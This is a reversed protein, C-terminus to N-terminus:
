CAKGNEQTEKTSEDHGLRAEDWFISTQVPSKNEKNVTCCQEQFYNLIGELHREIKLVKIKYQAHNSINQICIKSM